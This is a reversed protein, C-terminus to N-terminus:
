LYCKKNLALGDFLGIIEKREQYQKVRNKSGNTMFAGHSIVKKGTPSNRFLSELLVALFQDGVNRLMLKSRM